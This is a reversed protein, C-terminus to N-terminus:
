WFRNMTPPSAEEPKPLPGIAAFNSASYICVPVRGRPKRSSLIMSTPTRKFVPWPQIAGLLKELTGTNETRVMLLHSGQGTVNMFRLVIPHARAREIVEPYHASGESIVTIFAGVDMGVKRPDLVAAFGVIVGHDQLKRIREAVAPVSMGVREALDSTTQRGDAQLYGILEKDIQDLM